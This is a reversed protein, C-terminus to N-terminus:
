PLSADIVLLSCAPIHRSSTESGAIAGNDSSAATTIGSGAM